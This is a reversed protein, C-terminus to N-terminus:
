RRGFVDDRTRATWTAVGSGFFDQDETWIPTSRATTSYVGGNLDQRFVDCPMNGCTGAMWCPKDCINQRLFLGLKEACAPRM